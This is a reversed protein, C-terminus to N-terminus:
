LYGQARFADLLSAARARPIARADLEVHVPAALVPVAARGGQRPLSAALLAYVIIALARVSVIAALAASRAAALKRTGLIPGLRGAFGHSHLAAAGKPLATGSPTLAIRSQTLPSDTSVARDTQLRHRPPLRRRVCVRD